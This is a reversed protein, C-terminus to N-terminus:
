SREKAPTLLQRYACNLSLLEWGAVGFAALAFLWYLEIRGAGSRSDMGDVASSSVKPASKGLAAAINGPQERHVYPVNLEAAIDALAKEDISSIAPKYQAAKDLIYPGPSDSSFSYERMKGGSATGYGLVAGGDILETNDKFPEPAADATQEGDGLYFVLRPREPHSEAAAALRQGLLQNAVSISSGKSIFASKPTLVETMTQLATADTTLPLTVKATSDFSILSFRAGALETALAAIDSKMGELRQSTGNYDEAAVSPTVDVVFYVNLETNAVPASAGVLGPRAGAVLVLVVLAAFRWRAATAGKILLTVAGALLLVAISLYLWLPLIPLLTM